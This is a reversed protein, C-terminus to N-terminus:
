ITQVFRNLIEAWWEKAQASQESSALGTLTIILTASDNQKPESTVLISFGDKAKARWNMRKDSSSERVDGVVFGLVVKDKAAFDTWRSM